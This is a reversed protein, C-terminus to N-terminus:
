RARPPGDLPDPPPRDAARKTPTPPTPSFFDIPTDIEGVM